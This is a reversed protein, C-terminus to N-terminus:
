AILTHPRLSSTYSAKLKKAERTGAVIKAQGTGALSSGRGQGKGSVERVV